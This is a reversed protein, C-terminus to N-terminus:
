LKSRFCPQSDTNWSIGTVELTERFRDYILARQEPTVDKPHILRHRAYGSKARATLQFNPVGLKAMLKPLDQALREYRLVHDVILKRTGNERKESYRGTDIPFHGDECYEQWSKSYSGDTNHTESNRMMHFHSICKEVPEREVCFRTMSAFSKPGLALRIRRAPMHNFFPQNGEPDQFNRPEHGPEPPVIPTVIADAGAIESLNVEISTGATKNTKIFIFKHAFSIVAM